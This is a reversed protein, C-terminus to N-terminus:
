FILSAGMGWGIGGYEEDYKMTSLQQEAPDWDPKYYDARETTNEIKSILIFRGTLRLSISPSINYTFGISGEGAPTAAAFHSKFVDQVVDGEKWPQFDDVYTQIAATTHSSHFIYAGWGVGL